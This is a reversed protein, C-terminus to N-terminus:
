QPTDLSVAFQNAESAVVTVDVTGTFTNPDATGDPLVGDGTVVVQATGLPGAAKINCSMGDASPTLTVMTADSVSWVPPAALPAPNGAADEAVVTANVSQIDTLQIAAM